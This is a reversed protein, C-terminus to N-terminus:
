GQSGPIGSWNVDVVKINRQLSAPPWGAALSRAHQRRRQPEIPMVSRLSHQVFRTIVLSASSRINFHDQRNIINQKASVARTLQPSRRCISAYENDAPRGITCGRPIIM